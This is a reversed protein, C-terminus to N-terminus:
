VTLEFGATKLERIIPYAVEEIKHQFKKYVLGHLDSPVAVDGKYLCCVHKRGILGVLFGFEFIVNQRARYEKRRDNDQQAEEKANYGIDDPTLLIFAYGIDNTNKVLKELITQGEDPQRHLVVTELGIDALFVELEMKANEDHGHVIFVRNTRSGQATTSMEPEGNGVAEGFVDDSVISQAERLASLYYSIAKEFSQKSKRLLTVSNAYGLLARPASRDDFNRVIIQSVRKTWAIWEPSYSAPGLSSHIAFSEYSFAEGEGLLMGIQMSLDLAM